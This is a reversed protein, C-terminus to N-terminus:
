EPVGVLKLVRAFEQGVQFQSSPARELWGQVTLTPDLRM